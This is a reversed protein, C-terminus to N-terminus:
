TCDEKIIKEIDSLRYRKTPLLKQVPRIKYRKELKWLTDGSKIEKRYEILENPGATLYDKVLSGNVAVGACLTSVALMATLIVAKNM